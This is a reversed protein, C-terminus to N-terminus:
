TRCKMMEHSDKMLHISGTISVSFYFLIRLMRKKRFIRM